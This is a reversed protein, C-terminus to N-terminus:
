WDILWDILAHGKLWDILCACVSSVHHMYWRSISLIAWHKGSFYWFYQFSFVICSGFLLATVFRHLSSSRRHVHLAHLRGPFSPRSTAVSPTRASEVKSGFKTSNTAHKISRWVLKLIIWALSSSTWQGDVTWIARASASWSCILSTWYHSTWTTRKLPSTRISSPSLPPRPTWKPFDPKIQFHSSSWKDHWDILWDISPQIFWDILWDLRWYIILEHWSLYKRYKRNRFRWFWKLKYRSSLRISFGILFSDFFCCAFVETVKLKVGGGLQNQSNQNWFTKERHESYLSFLKRGSFTWLRPTIFTKAELWDILRIFSGM